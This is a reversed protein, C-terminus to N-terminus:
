KTKINSDASDKSSDKFMDEQITYTQNDYTFSLNSKNYFAAAIKKNPLKTTKTINANNIYFMMIETVSKFVSKLVVFSKLIATVTVNTAVPVSTLGKSTTRKM